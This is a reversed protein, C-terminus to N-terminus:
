PKKAKERRAEVIVMCDPCVPRTLEDGDVYTGITELTRPKTSDGCFTCAHTIDRGPDFTFRGGAAEVAAILAGIADGAALSERIKCSEEPPAAEVPKPPYPTIDVLAVGAKELNALVHPFHERLAALMAAADHQGELLVTSNCAGRTDGQTRDWWSIATYGNDLYHLVFQGQPCEASDYDIRTREDRTKGQAMWVLDGKNHRRAGIRPALTGDCCTRDPGFYQARHDYDRGGGPAHMYHGAENWCGFFYCRTKTVHANM